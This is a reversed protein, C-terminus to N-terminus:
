ARAISMSLDLARASHTMAGTSIRDVGTRAIAAVTELVVGGSAEIKVDRGNRNRIRVAEELDALDFDDCLICDASTTLAERFQDLTEVECTLRRAGIAARIREVAEALPVGALELHNEKVMAEDYLGFRHNVGGGCRVAYKDLIRWGPATKRTDCIRASSDALATVFHHTQTAIGSLRSLLNLLSRELILLHPATGEIRAAVQGRALPQGDAAAELVRFTAGPISDSSLQDLVTLVAFGAAIGDSKAHVSAVAALPTTFLAGGTLDGDRTDEDIGRRLM